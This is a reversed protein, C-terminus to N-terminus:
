PDHEDFEDAAKIQFSGHFRVNREVFWRGDPPPVTYIVYDMGQDNFILISAPVFRTYNYRVKVKAEILNKIEM